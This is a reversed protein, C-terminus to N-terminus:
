EGFEDALIDFIQDVDNQDLNFMKEQAALYREQEKRKKLIYGSKQNDSLGDIWKRITPDDNIYAEIFSRFLNNQKINDQLLKLILKAHYGDDLFIVYKKRTKGYRTRPM